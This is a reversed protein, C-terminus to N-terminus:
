LVPTKESKKRIERETAKEYADEKNIMMMVDDIKALASPDGRHARQVVDSMIEKAYKEVVEPTIDPIPEKSWDHDEMDRRWLAKGAIDQVARVVAGKSFEDDGYYNMMMVKRAFPLFKHAQPISYKAGSRTFNATNRKGFADMKNEKVKLSSAM